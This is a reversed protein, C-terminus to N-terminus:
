PLSYLEDEYEKWSVELEAALLREVGTACCHERKYPSDPADGPESDDNEQRRTEYQRDFRDVSEQAIKRHKCLLVEILEHVAVLAEFRWDSLESVRIELTKGDWWWDGVTSYLQKEHTITEINIKM